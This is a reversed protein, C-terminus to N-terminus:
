WLADCGTPSSSAVPPPLTAGTSSTIVHTPRPRPRPRPRAHLPRPTPLLAGTSSTIVRAPRPKTPRPAAPRPPASLTAEASATLLEDFQPGRVIPTHNKKRERKECRRAAHRLHVHAGDVDPQRVVVHPQKDGDHVRHRFLQQHRPLLRGAVLRAPHWITLPPHPSPRPALPPPTTPPTFPPTMMLQHRPLLRRAVLHQTTPPPTPPHTALTKLNLDNLPLIYAGGNIPPSRFQHPFDHDRM